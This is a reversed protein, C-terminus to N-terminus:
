TNPLLVKMWLRRSLFCAVHMNRGSFLFAQKNLLGPKQLSCEVVTQLPVSLAKFGPSLPLLLSIETLKLGVQDVFFFFFLGLITVAGVADQICMPFGVRSGSVCILLPQCYGPVPIVPPQPLRILIPRPVLVLDEALVSLWREHRSSNPKTKTKTTNKPMCDRALRFSGFWALSDLPGLILRDRDEVMLVM